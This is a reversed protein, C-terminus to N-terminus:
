PCGWSKQFPPALVPYPPAIQCGFVVVPLLSPPRQKASGALPSTHINRTISFVKVKIVLTHTHTHPPWACGFVCVCACVYMCMCVCVCACVCVHLLCACVYVCARGGVGVWVGVMKRKTMMLTKRMMMKLPCPFICLPM